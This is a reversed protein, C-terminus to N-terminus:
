PRSTPIPTYTWGVASQVPQRAFLPSRRASNGLQRSPDLTRVEGVTGRAPPPGPPRERRRASRRSTNRAKNHRVSGSASARIGATRRLHARTHRQADSSTRQGNARPWTAHHRDGSASSHEADTVTLPVPYPAPLCSPPSPLRRPGTRRRRSPAPPALAASALRHRRRPPAAVQGPALSSAKPCPCPRAPGSPLCLAIAATALLAALALGRWGFRAFALILAAPIFSSLQSIDPQLALLAAIGAFSAAALIAHACRFRRDGAATRSRRCQQVAGLDLWRSRRGSKLWPLEACHHDASHTRGLRRAM